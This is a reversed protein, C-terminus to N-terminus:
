FTNPPLLSPNLLFSSIGWLLLSRGHGNHAARAAGLSTTLLTFIGWSILVHECGGTCQFPETGIGHSRCSIEETSASFYLSFLYVLDVERVCM